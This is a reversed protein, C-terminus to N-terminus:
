FYAILLDVVEGYSQIGSEEGFTQLFNDYMVNTVRQATPNKRAHYARIDALDALVLPDLTDQIARFREPAVRNLANALYSYGMLYASYAFIPNDGKTGALIAVFNAENESAIRRQHVFEHLVTAPIQSRPALTNINAEATFPFYFGTYDTMAFLWSSLHQAKPVRDRHVLFPFEEEVNRFVHVSEEFIQEISVSFVDQACREVLHANQNLGEAFLLTVRELEDVSAATAHIGSRDQFNDTFFMVGYMWSFGAYLTLFLALTGAIIRYLGNQIPYRNQIRKKVRMKRIERVLLFICFLVFLIVLVEAVSFRVLHTVASIGRLIPALIVEVWFNMVPRMWRTAHFLLSLSGVILLWIYLFRNQKFIHKM